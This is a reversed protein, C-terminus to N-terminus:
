DLINKFNLALLPLIINFILKNPFYIYKDYNETKFIGMKEQNVSFFKKLLFYNFFPFKLAQVLYFVLQNYIMFKLIKNKCIFKGTTKGEEVFNSEGARKKARSGQQM